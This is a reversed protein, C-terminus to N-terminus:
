IGAADSGLVHYPLDHRAAWGGHRAYRALFDFTPVPEFMASWVTNYNVAAAMVAVLVEDPALDPMPIDGVHLSRRVDKDAAGAFMAVEAKRTYAARYSAPLACRALEPGPAGALVADILETM